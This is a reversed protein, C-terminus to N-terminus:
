LLHILRSNLTEYNTKLKLKLASKDEPAGGNKLGGPIGPPM